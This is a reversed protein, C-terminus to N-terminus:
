GEHCIWLGLRYNVRVSFRNNVRFSLWIHPLCSRFVTRSPQRFILDRGKKVPGDQRQIRLHGVSRRHQIHRHFIPIKSMAVVIGVAGELRQFRANEQKKKRFIHEKYRVM